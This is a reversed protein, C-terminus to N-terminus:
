GAAVELKRELKLESRHPMHKQDLWQNKNASEINNNQLPHAENMTSSTHSAWFFKHIIRHEQSSSSTRM